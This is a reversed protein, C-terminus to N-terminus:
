SVLQPGELTLMADQATGPLNTASIDGRKQLRAFPFSDCM